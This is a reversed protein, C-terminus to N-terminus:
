TPAISAGCRRPTPRAKDGGCGGNGSSNGPCCGTGKVTTFTGCCGGRTADKEAQSLQALRTQNDLSLGKGSWQRGWERYSMQYFRREQPDFLRVTRTKADVQELVLYHGSPQLGNELLAQAAGGKDAAITKAVKAPLKGKGKMAPHLAVLPARKLERGAFYSTSRDFGRTGDTHVIAPLTLKELTAGADAPDSVKFARMPAGNTAALSELEALSLGALTKPVVAGAKRAADPRHLALLVRELAKPGCAALIKAQPGLNTLTTIWGQAWTRRRWDTDTAVVHQLKKVADNWRGTAIDLDAWRALAKQHIEFSEDDEESARDLKAVAEELSQAGQAAKNVAATLETEDPGGGRAKREKRAKKM